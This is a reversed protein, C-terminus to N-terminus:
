DIRYFYTGNVLALETIGWYAKYMKMDKAFFENDILMFGIGRAKLELAAARRLGLPADVGSREPADTM